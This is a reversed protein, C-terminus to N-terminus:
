FPLIHLVCTVCILYHCYKSRWDESKSFDAALIAVAVAARPATHLQAPTPVIAQYIALWAYVTVTSWDFGVYVKDSRSISNSCIQSASTIEQGNYSMPGRQRSISTDLKNPDEYLQPDM